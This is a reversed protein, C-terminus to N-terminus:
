NTIVIAIIHFTIRRYVSCNVGSGEREFTMSRITDFCYMSREVLTPGTIDSEPEETAHPLMSSIISLSLVHNERARRQSFLHFAVSLGSNSMVPDSVTCYCEIKVDGRFM